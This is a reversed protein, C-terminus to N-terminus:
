PPPPPSGDTVEGYKIAPYDGFCAYDYNAKAVMGDQVKIFTDLECWGDRRDADCEPFSKGLPVTRQNLVFHIYKTENGRLYGDRNPSLPKPTKIIEMDLRAGFPTVHSVTFNHHGPHKKAPLDEAFQTLGFATLISIINTDHSFDFYLSQNLPFTETNNDLTVNIQSGSYGLTHNKLRAMIEQQYGIGIARGTPSHFGSISTFLLDISYGFEHWEKYTFLDCFKSFGYAVTEYPCMTQAAYVDEITWTFGETMAQFRTQAAIPTLPLRIKSSLKIMEDLMGDKLYEHIWVNRAENNPTKTYANPCNLSGELSNNFGKAEIIVEITANKTWELGFFGAMWNEASKLMRDQTTTRVIIKSRPNYLAGYMYSHLVGSEFLEQRGKPVLIEAGLQYKWNHLFTLSGKPKFKDSANAIKQGFTAVGSGSTPYRSGHRSLMQVQVIEADPPLPFEDVGFGPSPAYPSLHAMMKFISENGSAMGEIPLSTQLPENPVYTATPNFARTQAMFAPRGTPTPGAWLEPSTQFYQPVDGPRCPCSEDDNRGKFALPLSLFVNVGVLLVLLASLACTALRWRKEAPSQRPLLYPFQAPEAFSVHHAADGRDNAVGESADQDDDQYVPQYGASGDRSHKARTSSAM